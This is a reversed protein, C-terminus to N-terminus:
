TRITLCFYLHCLLDNLDLLEQLRSFVLLSFHVKEFLILGVLLSIQLSGSVRLSIFTQFLKSNPYRNLTIVLLYFLFDFFQKFLVHLIIEFIHQKLFHWM